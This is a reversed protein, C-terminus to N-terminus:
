IRFINKIVNNGGRELKEYIPSKQVEEKLNAPIEFNTLNKNQFFEEKNLTNTTLKDSNDNLTKYIKVEKLQLSIKQFYKSKSNNSFNLSTIALPFYYENTESYYLPIVASAASNERTLAQLKKVDELYEEGYCLIQLNISFAENNIHDAIEKNYIMKNNSINNSNSYQFEIIYVPINGLMGNPEKFTSNEKKQSKTLKQEWSKMDIGLNEMIWENLLSM